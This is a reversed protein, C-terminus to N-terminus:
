ISMGMFRFVYRTMYGSVINSICEPMRFFKVALEVTDPLYALAADIRNSINLDAMIEKAIDWSLALMFLTFEISWLTLTQVWYSGLRVLMDWIDQNLFEFIWDFFNYIVSMGM